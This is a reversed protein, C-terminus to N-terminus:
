KGVRELRRVILMHHTTQGLFERVNHYYNLTDFLSDYTNYNRHGGPLFAEFFFPLLNVM